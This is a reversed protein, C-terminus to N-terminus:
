VSCTLIMFDNIKTIFNFYFFYFSWARLLVTKKFTVKLLVFFVKIEDRGLSVAVYSSHEYM